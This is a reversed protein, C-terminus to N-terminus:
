VVFENFEGYEVGFILIMCCLQALDIFTMCEHKFEATVVASITKNCSGQIAFSLLVVIECEDKVLKIGVDFRSILGLVIVNTDLVLCSKTHVGLGSRDFSESKCISLIEAFPIELINNSLM